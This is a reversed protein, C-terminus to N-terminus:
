VVIPEFTSGPVSSESTRTAASVSLKATSPVKTRPKMKLQIMHAELQYTVDFAPPEVEVHIGTSNPFALAQNVFIETTGRAAPRFQLKYTQASANWSSNLFRGAIAPAYPIALRTMVNVDPKTAGDPWPGAGFGTKCAGWVANQSTSNRTSNDERCWDKWEWHIWSQGSSALEPIVEDFLGGCCSETMMLGTGLRRADHQRQEMYRQFSKKPQPPMYYHYALVSRNSDAQGGPPETFGVPHVNDWTVGGFFILTDTDVERIYRALTKYAPQLRLHDAAGPPLLLPDRFANGAFPENILEFGLVNDLGAVSTAVKAWYAGWADTLNDTNLYLNRYAEEDAYSGQAAPWGHNFPNDGFVQACTQRTPFGDAGVPAPHLWLPVPFGLRSSGSGHAAWKPVGEGCFRESLLDQHMDLLVYIGYHGAEQVIGRIARLYKEDYQGRQPEVGPWMAGLRLLNIGADRLFKFDTAVLSTLPDFSDRKPLWPPGKVIVNTGHFVLERAQDGEEVFVKNGSGDAAPHLTVKRPLASASVLRQCLRLFLVFWFFAM